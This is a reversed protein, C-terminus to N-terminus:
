SRGLPRVGRGRKWRTGQTEASQHSNGEAAEGVSDVLPGQPGERWLDLPRAQELDGVWVARGGLCGPLRLSQVGPFLMHSVSMERPHVSPLLGGMERGSGALLMGGVM